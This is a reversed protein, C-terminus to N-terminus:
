TTLPNIGWTGLIQAVALDAFEPDISDLWDHLANAIVEVRSRQGFQFQEIIENVVRVFDEVNVAGATRVPRVYLARGLENAFTLYDAPLLKRLEVSVPGNIYLYNPM